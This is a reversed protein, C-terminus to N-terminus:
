SSFWDKEEKSEASKLLILGDYGELIIPQNLDFNCKRLIDSPIVVVGNHIEISTLTNM